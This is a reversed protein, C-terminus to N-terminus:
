VAESEEGNEGAKNEAEVEEEQWDRERGRAHDNGREGERHEPEQSKGEPHSLPPLPGETKYDQGRKREQEQNNGEPHYPPPM